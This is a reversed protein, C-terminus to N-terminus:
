SAVEANRSAVGAFEEILREVGNLLPVTPTWGLIRRAREGCGYFRAVDYAREPGAVIPSHSGALKV